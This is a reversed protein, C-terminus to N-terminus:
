RTTSRDETVISRRQRLQGCLDQRSPQGGMSNIARWSGAQENPIGM